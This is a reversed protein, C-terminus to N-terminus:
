PKSAPPRPVPAGHARRDRDFAANLMHSMARNIANREQEANLEPAPALVLQEAWTAAFEVLERRFEPYLKVWAEVAKATPRECAAVFENLVDDVAPNKKRANM